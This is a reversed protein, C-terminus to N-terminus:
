KSYFERYPDPAKPCRPDPYDWKDMGYAMLITKWCVGKFERCHTKENCSYCASDSQKEFAFNYLQIAKPSNWIEGLTNKKINGIVFQPHDYLEECITVDGDPLIVVNRLNGTCISRQDFKEKKNQPDYTTQSEFGAVSVSISPYFDRISDIYTSIEDIQEVDLTLENYNDKYLSYGCPNLKLKKVASFKSVFSILNEIEHISSNHSTLVTNIETKLGVQSLYILTSEMESIYSPGVKIMQTLVSPIVSDLSIQIKNIGLSQIYDIMEKKIPIKTSILPAYGCDMLKRLIEKIDPHLLVEGGNIDIALAGNDKAEQIFNVIEPLQLVGERQMERNAYCYCCDTYCKMTLEMNINIPYELRYDWYDPPGSYNFDDVSYLTRQMDSEKKIIMNKPFCVYHRNEQLIGFWEQNDIFPTVIKQMKGIDMNFFRACNEIEKELTEQGKFFSLMKAQLPHIFTFWEEGTSEIDDRFCLLVRNKDQRLLYAPNLIYTEM